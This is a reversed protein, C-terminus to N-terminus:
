FKLNHMQLSVQLRVMKKIKKRRNQNRKIKIRFKFHNRIIKKQKKEFEIKEREQSELRFENLNKLTKNQEKEKKFANFKIEEQELKIKELTQFYHQKQTKIKEEAMKKEFDFVKKRQKVELFKEGKKL